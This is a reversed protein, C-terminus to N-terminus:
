YTTLTIKGARRKGRERRSLTLTLPKKWVRYLREGKRLLHAM